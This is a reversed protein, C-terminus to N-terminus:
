SLKGDPTYSPPGDHNFDGRTLARAAGGDAAVVFLQHYANPLFGAGDARYVMRDIIRPAEPLEVKLPKHEAAVYMTFALQRGDPSWVLSSPSESLNTVRATIGNALWHVFIQASGDGDRSVYAIRSGDPSWRPSSSNLASGTLPRTGSGDVAALWLSGRVQDTRIDMSQRVFVIQRGDPAIQPDSAWELDFVDAASFAPQGSRVPAAFFAAALLLGLTLAAVRRPRCIPLM